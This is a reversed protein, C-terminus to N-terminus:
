AKSFRAACFARVNEPQVSEVPGEDVRVSVGRTCEGLCFAAKIQVAEELGNEKVHRQMAEIVKYSGKLHCSSGICIQVVM